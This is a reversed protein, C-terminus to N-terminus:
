RKIEHLNKNLVSIESKNEFEGSPEAQTIQTQKGARETNKELASKMRATIFQHSSTIQQSNTTNFLSKFKTQNSINM